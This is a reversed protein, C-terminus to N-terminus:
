IEFSVMQKMIFGGISMWIMGGVSAYIARTDTFLVSTYEYNLFLLMLFM